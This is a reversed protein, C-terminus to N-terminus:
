FLIKWETEEEDDAAENGDEQGGADDAHAEPGPVDTEPPLAPEDSPAADALGAAEAPKATGAQSLASLAALRRALCETAAWRMVHQEDAIRHAAGWLRRRTSYVSLVINEGPLTADLSTTYAPLDHDLIESVIDWAYGEDVLLEVMKGAEGSTEGLVFSM